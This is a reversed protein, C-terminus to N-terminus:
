GSVPADHSSGVGWPGGPLAMAGADATFSPGPGAAPATCALSGLVLAGTVSLGCPDSRLSADPADILGTFRAAADGDGPEVVGAGVVHIVLDTPDGGDNVVSGTLDLSAPGDVAVLYIVVPGAIQVNPGFSLSGRCVYTGATLGTVTGTGSDTPCSLPAPSSPVQPVPLVADPLLDPSGCGSCSGGSGILDQGAGGPADHRLVLAGGAALRGSGSPGIRGPGDLVLSGRAALVWPWASPRTVSAEVRHRRGNVTGISSVTAHLADTITASWSYTGAGSTGAGTSPPTAPPSWQGLAHLADTVGAGAAATAAATDQQLRANDLAGVTRATVALALGSLVFVVALAIVLSGREGDTGRPGTM